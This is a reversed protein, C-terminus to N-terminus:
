DINMPGIAGKRVVPAYDPFAIRNNKQEEIKLVIERLIDWDVVESATRDGRHQSVMAQETTGQLAAAM